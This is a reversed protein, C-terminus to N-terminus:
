LSVTNADMTVAGDFALAAGQRIKAGTTLTISEKALIKGAFLTGTGLTASSGVLWLVNAGSPGSLRVEADSATVLTSGILFVYEADADDALEMLGTLEVSSGFHYAGGKLKHGGLDKGSLDTITKEKARALIKAMDSLPPAVPALLKPREPLPHPDEFKLLAAMESLAAITDHDGVMHLVSPAPILGPPFGTVGATRSGVHGNLVSKGTNTIGTNALVVFDKLSTM